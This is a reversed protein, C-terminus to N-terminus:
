RSLLPLCPGERLSSGRRMQWMLARRDGHGEAETLTEQLLSSLALTADHLELQSM